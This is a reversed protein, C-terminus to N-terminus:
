PKTPRQRAPAHAAGPEFFLLPALLSGPGASLPNPRVPGNTRRVLASPPPQVLVAQGYADFRVITRLFTADASFTEDVRRPRGQHDIWVELTAHVSRYAAPHQLHGGDARLFAALNTTLRYVTTSVGGEQQKGARRVPAAVHALARFVAPPDTFADSESAFGGPTGRRVPAADWLTQRSASTAVAGRSAYLVGDVSRRELRQHTNELTTTTTYEGTMFDIAGEEAIDPRPHGDLRITLTSHFRLSGSREAAAPAENIIDHAQAYHDPTLIVVLCAVTFALITGALTGRRWLTAPASASHQQSERQLKRM